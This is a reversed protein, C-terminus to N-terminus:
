REVKETVFSPKGEYAGWTGYLTARGSRLADLTRTSWRGAYLM